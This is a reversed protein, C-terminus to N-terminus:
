GEMPRNRGRGSALEQRMETSGEDLKGELDGLTAPDSLREGVTATKGTGGASLGDVGGHALTGEARGGDIGDRGLLGGGGGAGDALGGPVRLRIAM